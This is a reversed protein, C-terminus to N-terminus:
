DFRVSAIRLANLIAVVDIGEQLVAGAVPAIHGAGALVMCVLSLGIGISIGQKAVRITHQSLRLLEGIRSISQHILIVDASDAAATVGQAGIAIGVDAAALAPADNIGDGIMAVPRATAPLEEIARLKDEPSCEARTETVGIRAAIRDAVHQRDGTLMMIRSVGAHRLSEFLSLTDPRITDMLSVCGVITDERAVLVVSAGDEELRHMDEEFAHAAGGIREAIFSPRGITHRVGDILGEIGLGFSEVVDTPLSLAVTEEHAKAVIATAMVHTSLQDLSGAIHLLEDETVGIPHVEEVVPTGLTLTGTKDFVFTRTRSLVELAGGGKVILGRGAARSMGSMLAIPTALILPCPTAVVLVALVRVLDHSVLWVVLAIAFTVITFFGSYRDALRVLPAKNQEAERVLAVVQAYRSESAPKLARADITGGLNVTGSYILGGRHKEIARSEGSLTSEDFFSSGDEIVGDIPVVDGPKITVVMGVAIDEIPVDVLEGGCKVHAVHPARSLLGSIDKRARTMAYEELWEGSALMLLIVVGAVYQHLLLTALLSVGAIVDVGFKRKLLQRVLEYWLPLSGVFLTVILVVQAAVGYAAWYLFGSLLLVLVAVVATVGHVSSVNKM